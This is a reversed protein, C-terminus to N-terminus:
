GSTLDLHKKIVPPLSKPHEIVERYMDAVYLSGDPANAFQVPRFWIDTSTVWESQKDVRRAM